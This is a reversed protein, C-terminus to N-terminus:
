HQSQGAAWPHTGAWAAARARGQPCPSCLSSQPRHKTAAPLARACAGPYGFGGADRPVPLTAVGHRVLPTGLAGLSLGGHRAAAVCTAPSRRAASPQSSGALRAISVPSSGCRAVRCRQQCRWGEAARSQWQVDLVPRLWRGAGGRDETQPDSRGRPAMLVATSWAWSLAPAAAGQTHPARCGFHSCGPLLTGGATGARCRGESSPAMRPARPAPHGSLFSTQPSCLATVRGGGM